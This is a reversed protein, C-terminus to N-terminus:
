KSQTPGLLTAMHATLTDYCRVSAECPQRLNTLPKCHLAIHQDSDQFLTFM